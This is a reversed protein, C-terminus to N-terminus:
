RGIETLRTKFRKKEMRWRGWFNGFWSPRNKGRPMVLTEPLLGMDDPIMGTRFADQMQAKRAAAISPQTQKRQSPM